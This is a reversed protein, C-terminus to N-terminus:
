NASEIAHENILPSHQVPSVQGGVGGHGGAHPNGEICPWATEFTTMALCADVNSQSSLASFQENIARDICHDTVEYGPGLSNTYNAFPGTTICETGADYEDARHCPLPMTSHCVTPERAM